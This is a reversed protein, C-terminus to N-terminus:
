SDVFDTVRKWLDIHLEAMRAIRQRTDHVDLAAEAQATIRDHDDLQFGPEGSRLSRILLM